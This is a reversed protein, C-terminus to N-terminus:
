YFRLRSVDEPHPMDERSRGRPSGASPHREALARALFIRVYHVGLGHTMVLQRLAPTQEVFTTVDSRNWSWAPDRRSAWDLFGNWDVPAPPRAARKWRGVELCWRFIGWGMFLRVALVGGGMPVRPEIAVSPLLLWHERNKWAAMALFHNKLLLPRSRM